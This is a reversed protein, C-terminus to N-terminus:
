LEPLHSYFENSTVHPHVSGPPQSFSSTSPLPWFLLSHSIIVRRTCEPWLSKSFEPYSHFSWCDIRHGVEETIVFLSKIFFMCKTVPYMYIDIDLQIPTVIGVCVCEKQYRLINGGSNRQVFFTSLPCIWGSQRSSTILFRKWCLRTLNILNVRQILDM